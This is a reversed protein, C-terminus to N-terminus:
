IGAYVVADWLQPNSAIDAAMRVYLQNGADVGIPLWPFPGAPTAFPSLQGLTGAGGTCMLLDPMLINSPSGTNETHLDVAYQHHTDNGSLQPTVLLSFGKISQALSSSLTAWSGKAGSTGPTVGVGGFTTRTGLGISIIRSCSEYALTGYIPTLNIYCTGSGSNNSARAAIRTNAPVELPLVWKYAAPTPGVCLMGDVVTDASSGSGGLGLDVLYSWNSGFLNFAPFLDVIVGSARRPFGGSSVTAYTANASLNPMASWSFFADINSAVRNRNPWDM